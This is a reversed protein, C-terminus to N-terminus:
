LFRGVDHIKAGRMDQEAAQIMALQEENSCPKLKLMEQYHKHCLEVRGAHTDANKTVYVLRVSDMIIWHHQM